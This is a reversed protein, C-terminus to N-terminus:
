EKAARRGRPPAAEPFRAAVERRYGEGAWARLKELMGLFAERQPKTLPALMLAELEETLPDARACLALGKRTITLTFRRADEPSGTRLVLGADILRTLMRSTASREVRTLGALETFTIGPRDRVLRLVRIEQVSRGFRLEFLRAASGIGDDALAVLSYTLSPKQM